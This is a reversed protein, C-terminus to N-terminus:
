RKIRREIDAMRRACHPCTYETEKSLVSVNWLKRCRSCAIYRPGEKTKM